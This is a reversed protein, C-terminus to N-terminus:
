AVALDQKDKDAGRAAAKLAEEPLPRQLAKM